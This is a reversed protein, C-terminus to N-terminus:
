GAHVEEALAVINEWPVDPELVHTPAVIARIGRRTWSRVHRVAARVDEPTGFPMTTQTGIMGSMALRDGWREAVDNLPMCEPQVPNLIDVGIDILDDLIPRIDGDSHYQIWVKESRAARTREIVSALRPKLVRRWMPVSMMMGRQTGVDDGFRVCDVGARVSAEALVASRNAFHDLLWDAIGNEEALDEFLQDMGRLYWANEFVTCELGATAVLGREHCARVQDGFGVTVEPKGVDVWPLTPLQEVSEVVGLPHLMQSLHWAAGTSGDKPTVGVYGDTGLWADSPMEFGIQAFAERWEASRDPYTAWVYRFSTGFAENVDDTGLLDRMQAHVPETMPLDFPLDGGRGEMVALFNERRTM